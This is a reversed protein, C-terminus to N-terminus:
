RYKGVYKKMVNQRKSNKIKGINRGKYTNTQAHCNPCILRLNEPVNNEPDGDIHDIEIPILKNMWTSRKCVECQRGREWILRSKRRVDKKIDNWDCHILRQHGARLSASAFNCGCISCTKSKQSHQRKPIEKRRVHGSVHGALSAQTLFTRKCHECAYMKCM